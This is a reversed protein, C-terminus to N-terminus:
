YKKPRPVYPALEPGYMKLITEEYRREKDSQLDKRIQSAIRRKRNPDRGYPTTRVVYAGSAPNDSNNDPYKTFTYYGKNTRAESLNSEYLSHIRKLKKFFVTKANGFKKKEVDLTTGYAHPAYVQFDHSVGAADSNDDNEHHGKKYSLTLRNPKRYEVEYVVEGGNPHTWSSHMHESSEGNYTKKHATIKYGLKRLKNDIEDFHRDHAGNMIDSTWSESLELVNWFRKKINSKIKYM